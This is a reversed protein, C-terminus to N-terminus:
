VDAADGFSRLESAEEEDWCIGVLADIIEESSTGTRYSLDYIALQIKTINM